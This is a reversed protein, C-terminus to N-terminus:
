QHQHRVLDDRSRMDLPQGLQFTLFSAALVKAKSHTVVQKIARLLKSGDVVDGTRANARLGDLREPHPHDAVTTVTYRLGKVEVSELDLALYEESNSKVILKAYSGRPIAVDGDEDLVDQYVAGSFEQGDSKQVDITENNRVSITVGAGITKTRADSERGRGAGCSLDFEAHCGRDVWVGGADYGWSTERGDFGSIQRRLRVGRYTDAQCSQREGNDASCTITDPGNLGTQAGAPQMIGLAWAIAAVAAASRWAGFPWYDLKGPGIPNM